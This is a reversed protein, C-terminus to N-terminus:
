QIDVIDMDFILVAHPPIDAGAGQAGYALNSPIYLTAKTGKKFLLLGEDWGRIVMGKGVQVPLPEVHNFAPDTSSDFVKGSLLRGTYDVSVTQGPLPANGAGERHIVYYLGSSTRAYNTINNSKLYSLIQQESDAATQQEQAAAQAQRDQQEQQAQQKTKVNQAEVEFTLYDTEKIWEPVEQGPNQAIIEKMAVRFQAKDGARMLILGGALDFPQRSINVMQQAPQGNARTSGLVSDGIKQVLHFEMVDGFQTARTSNGLTIFKYELGNETKLYNSNMRRMATHKKDLESAKQVNTLKTEWKIVSNESIWDPSPMGIKDFFIKSSISFVASDGKKMMYIGDLPVPANFYNSSDNAPLIFETAQGTMAKQQASSNILSDDVKLSFNLEILDGTGLTKSPKGSIFKYHAGSKTTGEKKQGFATTTMAPIMCLAAATIGTKLINNM